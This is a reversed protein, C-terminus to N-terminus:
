FVFYLDQPFGQARKSLQLQYCLLIWHSRSYSNLPGFNRNSIPSFAKLHAM